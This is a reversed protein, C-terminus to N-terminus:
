CDSVFQSKSIYDMTQSASMTPPQWTPVNEIPMRKARGRNSCRHMAMVLVFFLCLGAVMANAKVAVEPQRRRWRLLVRVLLFVCCCLRCLYGVAGCEVVYKGRFRGASLKIFSLLHRSLFVGILFIGIDNGKNTAPM